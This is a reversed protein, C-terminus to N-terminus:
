ENAEKNLKNIEHMVLEAENAYKLAGDNATHANHEREGKEMMEFEATRAVCYRVLLANVKEQRSDLGSLNSLPECGIRLRPLIQDHLEQVVESSSLDRNDKGKKVLANLRINVGAVQRVFQDYARSFDSIKPLRSAGLAILLLGGTAILFDSLGERQPPEGPIRLSLFWGFFFGGALGGLHATQDIFPIMSAIAINLVVFILAGKGLRRLGEPTFSKRHRVLLALLVGYLGFIAGSAGAGASQPHHALSFLSGTLGALLYVILFARAGVFREILRGIDFFVYMNMAFHILGYHLFIATLLRWWEGNTTRPGYDVGLRIMTEPDFSFLSRNMIVCIVFALTNLALITVTAWEGPLTFPALLAAAPKSAPSEDSATM